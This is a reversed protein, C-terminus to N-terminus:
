VFKSLDTLRCKLYLFPGPPALFVGSCPWLLSTGTVFWLIGAVLWRSSSSTRAAHASFGFGAAAVPPHTVALLLEEREELGLRLLGPAFLGGLLRLYLFGPRPIRVM